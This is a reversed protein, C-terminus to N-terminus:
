QSLTWRIDIVFRKHNQINYNRHDLDNPTFHADDGLDCVGNKLLITVIESHGNQTAVFLPIAGEADCQNVDIQGHVMSKQHMETSHNMLMEVIEKYGFSSAIFLPTQGISNPENVHIQDNALLHRVCDVAGYRCAVFLATVGDGERKENIKLDCDKMLQQVADGDGRQCAEILPM